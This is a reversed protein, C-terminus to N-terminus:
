TPSYVFPYPGSYGISPNGSQAKAGDQFVSTDQVAIICSRTSRFTRELGAAWGEEIEDGIFKTRVFQEVKAPHGGLIPRGMKEM